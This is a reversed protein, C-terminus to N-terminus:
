NFIKKSSIKQVQSSKLLRSSSIEEPSTESSLITSMTSLLIETSIPLVNQSNTVSTSPICVVAMIPLATEMPTKTESTGSISFLYKPVRKCNFPYNGTSEFANVSVGVSDVKSWAFGTLRAMRYRIFLKLAAAENKFYSKLPGFFCKDFAQLTHTYYNSLRFITVNEVATRLLLPSSCYARNGDLFLIVQSSTKHKFFTKHVV